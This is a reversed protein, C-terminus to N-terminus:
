RQIFAAVVCCMTVLLGVTGESIKGASSKGSFLTSSAKVIPPPPPPAGTAWLTGNTCWIESSPTARPASGTLAWYNTSSSSMSSWPKLSQSLATASMIHDSSATWVKALTLKVSDPSCSLKSTSPLPQASSNVFTSNWLIKVEIDIIDLVDKVKSIYHGNAQEICLQM